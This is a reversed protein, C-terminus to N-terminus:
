LHTNNFGLSFTYPSVLYVRLSSPFSVMVSVSPCSVIDSDFCVPLSSSFFLAFSSSLLRWNEPSIM